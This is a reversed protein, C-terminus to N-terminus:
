RVGETNRILREMLDRDNQKYGTDAQTDQAENEVPNPADDAADPTLEPLLAPALQELSQEPMNRLTGEINTINLPLRDMPVLTVMVRIGTQLLPRMKADRIWDPHDKEPLVLVVVFYALCVIFAGRLGGFAVGLTRDLMGIGSDRLKSSIFNSLFSFLVLVVLFVLLLAGANVVWEINIYPALFPKVLPGLFLAAYSSVIWGTISLVEKVFGRMLSLAASVLLVGFIVYDLALLEMIALRDHTTQRTTQHSAWRPSLAALDGIEKVPMAANGAVPAFAQQFGLKAAEKLRLDSQSVPRVAGSLSIEGFVVSQRPLPKGSMSSILAAAVALDAAPENIRLGGAVNLFVDRGGFAMGCRAELVALVMSLRASDWGVIARRPTALSSPAALAQIEVLVPRTGEIGAFVAAGPVSEDRAELFLASPNQVEALGEERMEFVGIEHAPGFRNKIARLIRFQDGRDGEFYVVTDVMHELVRPGAIQGDKTVHGVLIVAVDNAKAYHILEQGSVRVQSVTGPAAEIAPSWMTQISDIIVLGVDGASELTKRIDAINTEAALEVPAQALKLRAARMRLQALAEEGSVYVTRLEKRAMSAAAQLLLTSKGIGPDGGLLTASGAVLGGGLVRDLESIGSILRAPETDQGSLSSLEVKRGKPAKAGRGIPPRDGAPEETM